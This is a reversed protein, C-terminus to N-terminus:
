ASTNSGKTGSASRRATNVDGVETWSSGNWSEVVATDSGSGDTHGSVLLAATSTGAGGYARRATNLDAEETWASGNYSENLATNPVNGGYVVGATQPGAGAMIHRATNMNGGSAWAGAPNSTFGKLEQDTSNYWVQGNVPNSPDSAVTEINTGHIDKYNAM